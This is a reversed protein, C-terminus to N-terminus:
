GNLSFPRTSRNFARVMVAQCRKLKPFAFDYEWVKHDEQRLVEHIEEFIWDQVKKNAALFLMGYVLTNATTDHGAVNMVFWNGLVESNTLPTKLSQGLDSVPGGTGKKTPADESARILSSILGGAEPKGLLISEKEAELAYLMHTKYDRIAQGVRAWSKPVIPWSMMRPPILMMFLANALIVGLTDRYNSVDKFKQPNKFGTAALVNLSLTRMDDALSRVGNSSARRWETLMDDAQNLTETWVSANAKENFPAATVKRHRKWDM